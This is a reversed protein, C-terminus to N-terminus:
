NPTLPGLHTQRTLRAEVCLLSCLPTFYPLHCWEGGFAKRLLLLLWHPATPSRLAPRGPEGGEDPLRVKSCLGPRPYGAPTRAEGKDTRGVGGCKRM